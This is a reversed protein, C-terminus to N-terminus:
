ERLPVHLSVVFYSTLTIFGFCGQGFFQLAMWASKNDPIGVSYLAIFLTQAILAIIIQWKVYGIKHSLMPLLVGGWLNAFGNPLQTVGIEIPRNTFIWLTAQPLLGAMSYYCMGSVFVVVLLVTFERVQKFLKSPFFPAKPITFSYAFCAAFVVVGVVIPAIVSASDWPHAPSGAWSLGVLFVTLGTTYLFIGFYDLEKAEQWRTKEFDLQPRSPPFYFAATGIIAPVGYIIGIYYCWRWGAGSALANGIL